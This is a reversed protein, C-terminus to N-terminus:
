KLMEKLKSNEESRCLGKMYGLVYFATALDSIKKCAEPDITMSTLIFPNQAVFVGVMGTLVDSNECIVELCEDYRESMWEEPKNIGLREAPSGKQSYM